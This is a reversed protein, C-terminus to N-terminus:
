AIDRRRFWAISVALVVLAYAMMTIGGHLNSVHIELPQVYGNKQDYVLDGYVTLGGKNVWALLSTTFQYPQLSPSIARLVSEVVALYVFAVGLAAATNKILNALGFGLLMVPVVVLAARIQVHVVDPWFQAADAGLTSVPVGRSSLLLRATVNWLVQAIVSLVLVVGSLALLKAWMLRLRRPEYFLWAVINKSSWEAGIFTAALMFGALSVAAGVAMAYPQVDRPQFPNASVFQDIPFEQETPVTGCQQETNGAVKLCDAVGQRIEVIQQNRQATAQALDGATVKSHSQWLFGVALLYGIISLAFLVKTFRRRGLRLFEVVLLRGFTPVSTRDGRHALTATM